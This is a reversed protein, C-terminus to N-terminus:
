CVNKIVGVSMLRKNVKESYRKSIIFQSQNKGVQLVGVSLIRRRNKSTPLMRVLGLDSRILKFISPVGVSELKVSM